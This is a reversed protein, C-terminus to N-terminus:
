PDSLRLLFSGKPAFESRCVMRSGARPFYFAATTLGARGSSDGSAICALPDGGTPVETERYENLFVDSCVSTSAIPVAM